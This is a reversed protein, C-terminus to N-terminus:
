TASGSELASINSLRELLKRAYIVTDQKKVGTAQATKIEVLSNRWNCFDPLFEILYEHSVFHIQNNINAPLYLNTISKLSHRFDPSNVQELYEPFLLRTNLFCDSAKIGSEKVEDATMSSSKLLLIMEIFVSGKCQTGFWHLQDIHSQYLHKDPSGSGVPCLTVLKRESLYVIHHSDSAEVRINLGSNGALDDAQSSDFVEGSTAVKIWSLFEESAILELLVGAVLQYQICLGTLINLRCEFASFNDIDAPALKERCELRAADLQGNVFPYFGILEENNDDIDIKQAIDSNESVVAIAKKLNERSPYADHLIPLLSYLDSASAGDSLLHEAYQRAVRYRGPKILPKATLYNFGRNRHYGLLASNQLWISKIFVSTREESQLGAIAPVIRAFDAGNEGHRALLHDLNRNRFFDDNDAYLDASLVERDQILDDIGSISDLSGTAYAPINEGNDSMRFSLLKPIHALQAFQDAILRDCLTLYGKLQRMQAVRYPSASAPLGNPGTAYQQPFTNQVSYYEGPNRYKGAPVEETVAVSSVAQVDHLTRQVYGEVSPHEPVQVVSGNKLLQFAEPDLKIRAIEARGVDLVTIAQEDKQEQHSVFALNNVALVGKISMICVALDSCRIQKHQTTHPAIDGSWNNELLPGDYFAQSQEEEALNEAQSSESIAPLVFNNIAQQLAERVQYPDSAADLLVEGHLTVSKPQLINFQSFLTAINRQGALLVSVDGLLLLRQSLPLDQYTALSISYSGTYQYNSPETDAEAKREMKHDPPIDENTTLCDVYVGGIMPFADLIVKAVDHDTVPNTLLAQEPTLFQDEFEIENNRNSLIDEVSFDNCYGLETLGYVLQELVTIGPDSENFNSWSGDFYRKIEEMAKAKQYSFDSTIPLDGIQIFDAITNESTM